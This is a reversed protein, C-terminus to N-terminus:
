LINREKLLAVLQARESIALRVIVELARQVNLSVVSDDSNRAVMSQQVDTQECVEETLSQNDELDNRCVDDTHAARHTSMRERNKRREEALAGAPDEASALAMRKEADRRSCFEGMTYDFWEWWSSHQILLDPNAELMARLDLLYQGSELRKSKRQKDAKQEDLIADRALVTLNSLRSVASLEVDNQEVAQVLRLM